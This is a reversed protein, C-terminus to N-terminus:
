DMDQKVSSTKYEQMPDKTYAAFCGYLKKGATEKFVQQNKKGKWSSDKEHGVRIVKQFEHHHLSTISEM